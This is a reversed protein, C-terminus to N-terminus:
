EFHRKAQILELISKSHRTAKRGVHLQDARFAEVHEGARSRSVFLRLSFPVCYEDLFQMESLYALFLKELSQGASMQLPQFMAYYQNLFDQAKQFDNLRVTTQAHFRVYLCLKSFCNRSLFCAAIDPMAVM